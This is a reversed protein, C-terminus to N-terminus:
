STPRIYHVFTFNWLIKVNNVYIIYNFVTLNAIFKLHLFKKKYFGSFQLSCYETIFIVICNLVFFKWESNIISYQINLCFFLDSTARVRRFIDNIRVRRILSKQQSAAVRRREWQSVPNKVAVNGRAWRDNPLWTGTPLYLQLLHMLRCPPFAPRRRPM